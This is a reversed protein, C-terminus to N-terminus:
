GDVERLIVVKNGHRIQAHKGIRAERIAPHGIKSVRQNHHWGCRSLTLHRRQQFGNATDARLSTQRSDIHLDGIIAAFNLIFVGVQQQNARNRWRQFILGFNAQQDIRCLAPHLHRHAM